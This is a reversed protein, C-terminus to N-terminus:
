KRKASGARQKKASAAKPATSASEAPAAEAAAVAASAGKRAVRGRTYVTYLFITRALALTSDAHFALHPFISKSPPLQTTFPNWAGSAARIGDYFVYLWVLDLFLWWAILPSRTDIDANM